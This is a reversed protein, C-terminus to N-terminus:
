RSKAARRASQFSLFSVAADIANLAFIMRYTGQNADDFLWASPAAWIAMAVASLCYVLSFGPTFGDAARGRLIKVADPAFMWLYMASTATQVAFVLKATAAASFAAALLGPVIAAAAFYAGVAVAAAAATILATEKLGRGRTRSALGRILLPVLLAAGGFINQLGFLAKHLAPAVILGLAFSAAAGIIARAKPTSKGHFTEYIQILPFVAFGVNGVVYSAQGIAHWAAASPQLAALLAPHAGLALVAPVAAAYGAAFRSPAGLRGDRRRPALSPAAGADAAAVSGRGGVIKEGLLASFEREADARDTEAAPRADASAPLSAAIDRAAGSPGRASPGASDESSPEAAAASAPASAAPLFAAGPMALAAAPALASAAASPAPVYNPAALSTAAASFLGGGQAGAFSVGAAAAGGVSVAVAVREVRLEQAATEPLFAAALLIFSAAALGMIKRLLAPAPRKIM